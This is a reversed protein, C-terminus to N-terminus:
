AGLSFGAAEPHGASFLLNLVSGTLPSVSRPHKRMDLRNTWLLVRLSSPAPSRYGGAVQGRARGEKGRQVLSM